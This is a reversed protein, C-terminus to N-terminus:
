FPHCQSANRILERSGSQKDKYLPTRKVRHFGALARPFSLSQSDGAIYQVECNLGQSNRTAKLCNVFGELLTLGHHVVILQSASLLSSRGNRSPREPFLNKRVQAPTQGLM